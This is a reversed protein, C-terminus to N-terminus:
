INHQSEDRSFSIFTEMTLVTTELLYSFLVYLNWHNLYLILNYNAKESFFKEKSQKKKEGVEVLPPSPTLTPSEWRTKQSTPKQQHLKVETRKAEKDTTNNIQLKAELWLFVVTTQWGKISPSSLFSPKIKEERQLIVVSPASTLMM